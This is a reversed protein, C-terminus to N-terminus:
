LFIYVKNASQDFATAYIPLDSPAPGGTVVGRYNFTAVHCPCVFGNKDPRWGVSCGKHTCTASIAEFTTKNRRFLFVLDDPLSIQEYSGITQLDPYKNVDVLVFKRGGIDIQPAEYVIEPEPGSEQTPEDPITQPEDAVSPEEPPNPEPAPESKTDTVPETPNPETKAEKVLEIQNTDPTKEAAADAVQEVTNEDSPTTSCGQTSSLTASGAIALSIGALATFERRSVNKNDDSM